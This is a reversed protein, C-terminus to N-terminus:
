RADEALWIINHNVLGAPESAPVEIELTHAVAVGRPTAGGILQPTSTLLRGDIRVRQGLSDEQLFARVSVFRTAAAGDIRLRFQRRVVTRM